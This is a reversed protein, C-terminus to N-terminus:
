ANIFRYGGYAPNRCQACGSPSGRCKSCGLQLTIISSAPRKLPAPGAASSSAHSGNSSHNEPEAVAPKKALKAKGKAKPKADLDKYCGAAAIAELKKIEDEASVAGDHAAASKANGAAQALSGTVQM